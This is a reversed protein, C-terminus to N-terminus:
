WLEFGETVVEYDFQKERGRIHDLGTMEGETQAGSRCM